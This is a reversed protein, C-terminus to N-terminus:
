SHQQIIVAPVYSSNPAILNSDVRLFEQFGVLGYEVFKAAQDFRKCYISSPVRRQVFYLPNYLVVSNQAAGISPMSPCICVRKGHIFPVDGQGNLGDCFKVLPLGQKTVIGELYSLTSDNMAWVAGPRYAPDLKHYATNLDASGLSNSGTESGGTNNSSGSAVVVTAGNALAATLLGTLTNVGSGSILKPGIGRAMRMAFVRELVTGIPFNSDQLLELTVAVYGTRFPWANLQATGFNAIDVESSQLTEGVQTAASAVDDWAPFATSAGTPTEIINAFTEDFIQDYQKMTQFSRQYMQPSVFTGGSPGQTYTISQTGSENARVEHDPPIFTPRVPDGKAFSRWENETEDDLRGLRGREPARPLGAEKLLRDQEWRRLEEVATGDRLEALLALLTAKRSEQKRTLNGPTSDISELEAIIKSRQELRQNIVSIM